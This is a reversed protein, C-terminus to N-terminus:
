RKELEQMLADLTRSAADAEPTGWRPLNVLVPAHGDLAVSFRVSDSDGGDRDGYNEVQHLTVAKIASRPFVAVDGSTIYPMGRGSEEDEPVDISGIFMLGETLIVAEFRAPKNREGHVSVSALVIERDGIARALLTELYAAYADANSWMAQRRPWRMDLATLAKNIQKIRDEQEQSIVEGRTDFTHWGM